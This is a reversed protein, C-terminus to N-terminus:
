GALVWTGADHCLGLNVLRRLNLAAVRLSLGIRNREVGRYRLRRNGKATLWANSREVMPRFQRYDAAFDGERWARRNEFLLADHRQLRLTRGDIHGPGGSSIWGSHSDSAGLHFLSSLV